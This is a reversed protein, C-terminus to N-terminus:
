ICGAVCYESVVRFRALFARLVRLSPAVLAGGQSCCDAGAPHGAPGAYEVWWERPKLLYALVDGATVIGHRVAGLVADPLVGDERFGEEGGLIVRRSVENAYRPNCACLEPLDEGFTDVLVRFVSDPLAANDCLSSVVQRTADWRGGGYLCCAAMDSLVDAPAHSM